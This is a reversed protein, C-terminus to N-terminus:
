HIRELIWERILNAHSVGKLSALKRITEVEDSELHIKVTSREFVTGSVEELQEEFDTLDHVDWFQALEQISDTRPIKQAM